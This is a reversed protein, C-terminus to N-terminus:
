KLKKSIKKLLLNSLNILSNNLDNKIKIDPKKPFEPKIDIGVVNKKLKYHKKKNKKIISKFDTEIFIELYNEIKKRNKKRITEFMGIVSIIVNIGQDSIKKLLDSYILGNNIRGQRSYDKFQFIKRLEDGQFIITRGYKKAFKNLILKSIATKGSGSIGTIWLVIGKKKNLIKKM